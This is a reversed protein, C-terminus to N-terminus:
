ENAPLDNTEDRVGTASSQIRAPLHRPFHMRVQLYAPDRRQVCSCNVHLGSAIRTHVQRWESADQTSRVRCAKSM